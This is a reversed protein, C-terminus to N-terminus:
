PQSAYYGKRYFSRFREAGSPNTVVIRIKHWKGDATAESPHYGLVYQTRLERSLLACEEPLRALNEVTTTRGGSVDTMTSLWRKGMAEEFTKFPSTGFIGIAYVMVDSEAVISKIQSLKYRSANDGGDSIIVLARRPYQANRLKSVGLYVADLLATPGSPQVLGLETEIGSTLRTVDSLVHPQNNFTIVFYDDEPNANKFFQEVAARETDIKDQMSASVDLLLGVSIPSDEASFYRIQQQRDGEYVAFDKRALNALPHNLDDTVTVPVLVLNVSVRISDPRTHKEAPSTNLATDILSASDAKRHVTSQSLAQPGTLLFAGLCIATLFCLEFSKQAM